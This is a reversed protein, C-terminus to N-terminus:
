NNHQIYNHQVYIHQADHRWFTISYLIRSTLLCLFSMANLICLCLMWCVKFSIKFAKISRRDTQKDTQRKTQRDKPRDTKQDTQRKTQRDKPRDTKQDTQRKTQRDLFAANISSYSLLGFLLKILATWDDHAVGRCEAYRCEAYCYSFAVSLM